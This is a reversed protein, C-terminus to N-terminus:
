SHAKEITEPNKIKVGGSQRVYLIIYICALTPTHAKEITEPNKIKV